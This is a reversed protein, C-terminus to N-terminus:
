NKVWRPSAILEEAKYISIFYVGSVWEQTPVSIVEGSNSNFSGFIKGSVDSYILEVPEGNGTVVIQLLDNGPNPFLLYGNESTNYFTIILPTSSGQLGLELKYYNKQGSVPSDHIFTYPLETTQSGCIGPIEGVQTYNVDDISHNILIGNCTNGGIIGWKLIIQDDKILGFFYSLIEHEQSVGHFSVGIFLLISLFLKKM